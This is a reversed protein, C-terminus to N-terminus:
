GVAFTLGGRTGELERPSIVSRERHARWISSGCLSGHAPRRARDFGRDLEGETVVDGLVHEVPGPVELDEDMDVRAHATQMARTRKKEIRQQARVGTDYEIQGHRTGTSM